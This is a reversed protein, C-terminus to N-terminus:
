PVNKMRRADWRQVGPAWKKGRLGGVFLNKKELFNSRTIALLLIRGCTDNLPLCGEKTETVERLLLGGGEVLVREDGRVCIGVVLLVM